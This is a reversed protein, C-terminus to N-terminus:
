HTSRHALRKRSRPVPAIGVSAIVAETQQEDLGFSRIFVPKAPDSLDYVLTM